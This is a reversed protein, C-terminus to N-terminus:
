KIQILICCEHSRIIAECNIFYLVFYVQFISGIPHNELNEFLFKIKKESFSIYCISLDITPITEVHWFIDSCNTDFLVEVCKWKSNHDINLPIIKIDNNVIIYKGDKKEEINHETLIEEIESPQKKDEFLLWYDTIDTDLKNGEEKNDIVAENEEQNNISDISDEKDVDDQLEKDDAMLQFENVNDHDNENTHPYDNTQEKLNTEELQKLAENVEIPKEEQQLPPPDNKKKKNQRSSIYQFRQTSDWLYSEIISKRMEIAIENELKIKKNYYDDAEKQYEKTKMISIFSVHEHIKNKNHQIFCKECYNFEICFCCKFRLGIIKPINCGNCKLKHTNKTDNFIAAKNPDDLWQCKRIKQSDSNSPTSVIPFITILKINNKILTDIHEENSISYLINQYRFYLQYFKNWNKDLQLKSEVAQFFLKIRSEENPITIVKIKNDHCITLQYPADSKDM